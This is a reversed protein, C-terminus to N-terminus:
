EIERVQFKRAQENTGITLAMPLLWTLNPISNHVTVASIAVRLVEEETTTHLDPFSVVHYVFFHVRFGDVNDGLVCFEHWDSPKTEVGTEERFERVMAQLATEGPEIKGGIGNLRGAQWRPKTKRILAVRGESAIMFGAVYSTM